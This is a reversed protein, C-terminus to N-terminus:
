TCRCVYGGICRASWCTLLLDAESEESRVEIDTGHSIELESGWTAVIMLAALVCTVRMRGLLVKM